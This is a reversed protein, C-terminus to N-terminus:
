QNQLTQIWQALQWRIAEADQNNFLRIKEEDMVIGPNIDQRINEKLCSLGERIEEAAPHDPHETLLSDLTYLYAYDNVATCLGEWQLTSVIKGDPNSRYMLSPFWHSAPLIENGDFTIPRGLSFLWFTQGSFDQTYSLLGARARSPMLGGFANNYSGTGCYRFIRIGDKAANGVLTEYEERPLRCDGKEDISMIIIKCYSRLTKWLPGTTYVAPKLGAAQIQQCEWVARAPRDEGQNPEDICLIYLDIDPGIFNKIELLAQQMAQQFEESKMAPTVGGKESGHPIEFGMAKAVEVELVDSFHLLFPGKMGAARYGDLALKGKLFSKIKPGGEVKELKLMLPGGYQCAVLIGEIKRRKFERCCENALEPTNGIHGAHVVYCMQEPTPHRLTFPLIRLRLEAQKKVGDAIFVVNGRYLGPPTRPPIELQFTFNVSIGSKMKLPTNRLPILVEPVLNYTGTATIAHRRTNHIRFVHLNERSLKGGSQNTLDGPIVQIQRIDTLAHVGIFLNIVEGPSALTSAWDKLSKKEPITHDYVERPNSADFFVFPGANEIELPRTEPFHRYGQILRYEKSAYKFALINSEMAPTFFASIDSVTVKGTCNLLRFLLKVEQCGSPIQCSIHQQSPQSSGFFPVGKLHMKKGESDRGEVVAAFSAWIYDPNGSHLNDRYERFRINLMGGSSFDQKPIFSWFVSKGLESCQLLLIESGDPQVEKCALKADSSQWQITFNQKPILEQANVTLMGQVIFLSLCFFRELMIENGKRLRRSSNKCYEAGAHAQM